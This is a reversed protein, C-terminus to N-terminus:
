YMSWLVLRSLLPLAVFQIALLVIVPSLDLGATRWPPLLRRVPELVPETARRLFVVIPNRPDPSVWTILAAAIIVYSYLQLIWEVLRIVSDV